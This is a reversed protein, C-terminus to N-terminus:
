EQANSPNDVGTQDSGTYHEYIEMGTSDFSRMPHSRKREAKNHKMTQLPEEKFNWGAFHKM